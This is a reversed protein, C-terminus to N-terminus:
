HAIGEVRIEGHVPDLEGGSRRSQIRVAWGREKTATSPDYTPVRFRSCPRVGRPARNRLNGLDPRHRRRRHRLQQPLEGTHARGLRLLASRFRPRQSGLVSETQAPPARCRFRPLSSAKSRTSIRAPSCRFRALIQWAEMSGTAFPRDTSSSRRRSMALNTCCSTAAGPVAVDVTLGYGDDRVDRFFERTAEPEDTYVPSHLGTIM